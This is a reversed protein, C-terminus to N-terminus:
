ISCGLEKYLEPHKTCMNFSNLQEFKLRSIIEKTIDLYELSYLEPSVLIMESETKISKLFNIYNEINFSDFESYDVWIYKPKVLAMLKQNISEVDSVRIIFRHSHQPYEKSLRLIDPIQSDLFYFDISNTLCFHILEEEVGSEKINLIATKTLGKLTEIPPYESSFDLRDHNLVLGRLSSRVDVEIAETFAKINNQRHLFIM